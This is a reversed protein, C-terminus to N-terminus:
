KEDRFKKLSENMKNQNSNNAIYEDVEKKKKLREQVLNDLYDYAEELTEASCPVRGKKSGLSCHLEYLFYFENARGLYNIKHFGGVIVNEPYAVLELDKITSYKLKIAEAVDKLTQFKM